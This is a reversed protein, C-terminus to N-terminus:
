YQCIPQCNYTNGVNIVSYTDILKAQITTHAPNKVFKGRRLSIPDTESTNAFIVFQNIKIRKAVNRDWHKM